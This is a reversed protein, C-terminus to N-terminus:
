AKGALQKVKEIKAKLEEPEHESVNISDEVEKLLEM